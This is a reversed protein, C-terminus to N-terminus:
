KEFNREILEFGRRQMMKQYQPHAIVSDPPQFAQQNMLSRNKQIFIFSDIKSIYTEVEGKKLLLKFDIVENYYARKAADPHKEVKAKLAKLRDFEEFKAYKEIWLDLSEQHPDIKNIYNIAEEKRGTEFLIHYFLGRWLGVNPYEDVLDKVKQIAKDAKSEGLLIYADVLRVPISKPNLSKAIELENRANVIDGKAFYAEALWQHATADNPKLEIARQFFSLCKEFDFEYDYYYAGYSTYADALDPNLELTKEIYSLSKPFAVSSLEYQNSALTIYTQALGSYALAFSPDLDIAKQFYELAKELSKHTRKEWEFRGKSYYQYADINNTPKKNFRSALAPTLETKLVSAIHQALESQIEFIDNVERDYSKAWLQQDNETNVLMARVRLKNGASQVSGLLLHKVGLEKGIEQVSKDTNKYRKSSSFSIVQLEKISSLNTLIDQTIGDSFYDQEPDKNLNELPIVALSRNLVENAQSSFYNYAFFLGGMVLITALITPLIQVKTEQFKGKIERKKPVILGENAFAFIEMKKDVNKFAFSGLNVIQLSEDKLVIEQIKKSFTITGAVGITEIRSAINIANGYANNDEFFVEGSHLGMRVPVAPILRYAAQLRLAAQVMQDANEFICLAGDGYFNIVKGQYKPVIERLRLRFKQLIVAADAEDNQMLATYDAIDAFLIFAEKNPTKDSM